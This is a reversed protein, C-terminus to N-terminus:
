KGQREESYKRKALRVASGFDNPNGRKLYTIETKTAKSLDGDYAKVVTYVEYWGM